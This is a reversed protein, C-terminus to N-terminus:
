DNHTGHRNRGRNTRPGDDSQDQVTHVPQQTTQRVRVPRSTDMRRQRVPDSTQVGSQGDAWSNLIRGTPSSTQPAGRQRWEWYRRQADTWRYRTRNRDYVYYGNGPYYFGDYWGYPSGYGYGYPSYGSYYGDGYYGNYGNYGDYGYGNGYGVGVGLGGYPGYACGSLGVGAAVALAAMKFNFISM